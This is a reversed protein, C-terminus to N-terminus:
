RNVIFTIYASDFEGVIRLVYTGNTAAAILTIPENILDVDQYIEYEFEVSNMDYVHLRVNQKKYLEVQITFNGDNPNPYLDISKIGNQNFLNALTSDFKAVEINKTLSTVCTGYYADLTIDFSGTDPLLFLPSGMEYGILIIEPPFIWQASDPTPNSVDIAILTDTQQNYTSVLFDPQVTQSTENIEAQFPYVCNLSDKVLFNYVGLALSDFTTSTQFVSGNDISYEFPGWGSIPSVVIYGSSGGGCPQFGQYNIVPAPPTSIRITDTGYCGGNGFVEVIAISDQGALYSASPSTQFNDWLYTVGTVTGGFSASVIVSNQDCVFTDNSVFVDISNDSQVLVSDSISCGNENSTVTLTYYGPNIVTLPNSSPPISVGTWIMATDLSITSGDLFISDNSCNLVNVSSPLQIDPQILDEFILVKLTDACGTNLNISKVYYTGSQTVAISDGIPNLFNSDTWDVTANVSDSFSKLYLTDISCSITDLFSLFDYGPYGQININAKVYDQTIVIPTQMGICGNITDQTYFQYQVAENAILPNQLSDGNSLKKWWTLTDVTNNCIGTFNLLTDVCTLEFPGTIPDFTPYVKDIDVLITDFNLCGLLNEVRLVYEASDAILTDQVAVFSPESLEKWSYTVNASDSIGQLLISDVYCTLITDIGALANPLPNLGINITTAKSYLNGPIVLNNGCNSFPRVTLTGDIFNDLFEISVSPSVTVFTDQVGNFDPPDLDVGGNAFTWEYGDAGKVNSISFTSLDGQCVMTDFVVFDSPDEPEMCFISLGTRPLGNVQTLSKTSVFLLNNEVFLNGRSFLNSTNHFNINFNWSYDNVDLLTGTNEYLRVTTGLNHFGIAFNKYTIPEIFSAAPIGHLPHSAVSSGDNTSNVSFHNSASPNDYFSLLLSDEYIFSSYTELNNFSFPALTFSGDLNGATDFKLMSFGMGGIFIEGNLETISNVIETTWNLNGPDFDPLYVKSSADITTLNQSSYPNSIDIFFGGLILKNSVWHIDRIGESDNSTGVDLNPNWSTILFDTNPPPPFTFFQTSSFEAIGNRSYVIGGSTVTSFDGGIVIRHYTEFAVTNVDFIEISYIPGDTTELFQYEPPLSSIDITAFTIKDIFAINDATSSGLQTFDGVVIYYKDYPDLIVDHISEGPNLDYNFNIQELNQTFCFFSSCCFFLSIFGKAINPV